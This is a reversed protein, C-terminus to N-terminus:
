SVDLNVNSMICYWEQEFGKSGEMHTLYKRDENTLSRGGFFNTPEFM